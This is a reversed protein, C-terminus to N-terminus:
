GAPVCTTTYVDVSISIPTSLPGPSPGPCSSPDNVPYLTTPPKLKGDKVPVGSAEGGGSNRGERREKGRGEMMTEKDVRM